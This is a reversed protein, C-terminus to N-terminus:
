RLWLVTEGGAGLDLAGSRAAPAARNDRGVSPARVRWHWRGAPRPWTLLETKGSVGGVHLPEDWEIGDRSWQLVVEPWPWPVESRLVVHAVPRVVLRLPETMGPQWRVMGAWAEEEAVIHLSRTPDVDGVAFTSGAELDIEMGGDIARLWPSTSMEAWRGRHVGAFRMRLRSPAPMSGAEVTVVGRLQAAPRQRLQLEVLEIGPAVAFEHEIAHGRPPRCRLVWLGASLGSARIAGITGTAPHALGREGDDRRLLRIRSGPDLAVGRADLLRAHLRARGPPRRQVILTISSDEPRAYHHEPRQWAPGPPSVSLEHLVGARLGELRFRGREDTRGVISAAGTRVCSVHVGSIPQGDQDQVVGTLAAAPALVLEVPAPEGDGSLECRHTGRTYGDLTAVVRATAAGRPTVRVSFGGGADTTARVVGDCHVEVAVGRLPVGSPARVVGTIVRETRAPLEVTVVEAATTGPVVDRHRVVIGGFAVRLSYRAAGDPRPLASFRATGAADTRHEFVAAWAPHPGPQWDSALDAGLPAFRPECRVVAGAAATGDSSRVVVELQGRPQLRLDLEREARERTLSVAHWGVGETSVAFVTEDRRRPVFREELAFTGDDASRGAWGARRLRPVRRSLGDRAPTFIWHRAVFLDAGAVPVGDAGLVRGAIGTGSPVSVVGADLEGPVAGPDAPASLAREVRARGPARVVLELHEWANAQRSRLEFRGARDTRAREPSPRAGGEPWTEIWGVEVDALPAGDEEAVVTGVVRVAWPEPEPAAESAVETRSAAPPAAGGAPPDGDLPAVPSKEAASSGAPVGDAASRNPWFVVAAAAVVAAGIWVKSQLAMAGVGILSASTAARAGSAVPVAWAARSGHRADLRARLQAVGRKIRTRVTELPVGLRRAVDTLPREELYRLLLASRYPESLALVEDVVARHVLARDVVEAPDADAGPVASRQEIERRQRERRQGRGHIRRAVTALWARPQQVAPGARLAALMTEQALDAALHRDDTLCLALRQLWATEALLLETSSSAM